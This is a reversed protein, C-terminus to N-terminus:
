CEKHKNKRKASAAAKSQQLFCLLISLTHRGPPPYFMVGQSKCKERRGSPFGCSLPFLATGHQTSVGKGKPRKISSSLFCVPQAQAIAPDVRLCLDHGQESAPLCNWLVTRVAMRVNKNPVDHLLQYM